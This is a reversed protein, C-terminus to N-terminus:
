VPYDSTLFIITLSAIAIFGLLVLLLIWGRTKADKTKLYFGFEVTIVLVFLLAFYDALTSMTEAVANSFFGTIWATSVLLITVLGLGSSLRSLLKKM